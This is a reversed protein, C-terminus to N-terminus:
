IIYHWEAEFETGSAHADTHLCQARLVLGLGLGLALGVGSGCVGVLVEGFKLCRLRLGLGLGLGLRLGSM